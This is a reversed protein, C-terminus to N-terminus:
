GERVILYRVVTENRLRLESELEVAMSPEADVKIFYYYGENQHLIEYALKRKGWEDVDTVVGQYKAIYGKVTELESTRQEDTMAASLVVAVEYKNM